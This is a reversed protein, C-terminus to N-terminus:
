QQGRTSARRPCACGAALLHGCRLRGPRAAAMVASRGYDVAAADEQLQQVTQRLRIAAKQDGARRAAKLKERTERLRRAVLARGDDDQVPRAAATVAREPVRVPGAPASPASAAARGESPGASPGHVRSRLEDMLPAYLTPACVECPAQAFLERFGEAYKTPAWTHLVAAYEQARCWRCADDDLLAASLAARGFLLRGTDSVLGLRRRQDEAVQDPLVTTTDRRLLTRRVERALSVPTQRRRALDHLADAQRAKLVDDVAETALRVPDTSLVALESRNIMNRVTRETVGLYHGAQVANLVSM